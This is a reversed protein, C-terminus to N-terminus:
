LKAEPGPIPWNVSNFVRVVYKAEGARAEVLRSHLSGETVLDDMIRVVTAYDVAGTSTFSSGRGVETIVQEISLPNNSSFVRVIADRVYAQARAAIAIGVGQITLVGVLLVAITVGIVRSRHREIALAPVLRSRCQRRIVGPRVPDLLCGNWMEGRKTRALVIVLMCLFERTEFACRRKPPCLHHLNRASRRFSRSVKRPAWIERGTAACLLSFDRFDTRQVVM